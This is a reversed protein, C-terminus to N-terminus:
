QWKRQKEEELLGHIAEVISAEELSDKAWDKFAKEWGTTSRLFLLDPDEKATEVIWINESKLKSKKQPTIEGTGHNPAGIKRLWDLANIAAKEAESGKDIENKGVSINWLRETQKPKEQAESLSRLPGDEEEPDLTSEVLYQAKLSYCCAFNYNKIQAMFDDDGDRLRDLHVLATDIARIALKYLEPTLKNMGKEPSLAETRLTGSLQNWCHALRFHCVDMLEPSSNNGKLTDAIANYTKIAFYYRRTEFAHQARHLRALLDEAEKLPNSVEGTLIKTQVDTKQARYYELLKEIVGSYTRQRASVKAMMKKASDLIQKSDPSLRIFTGKKEDIVQEPESDAIEAQIPESEIM